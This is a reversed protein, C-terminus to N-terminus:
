IHDIFYNFIKQSKEDRMEEPHWQVGFVNDKTGHVVAEILRDKSWAVAELGDALNKIAQHHFSNVFSKEACIHSLFSNSDVHISHIGSGDGSKQMHQIHDDIETDINQYLNGGMAVNLLQMGRCIGFIPIGLELANEVLAIEFSDRIVDVYGLDKVPEEGYYNPHLDVGGALVLGDMKTLIRTIDDNLQPRAPILLPIGGALHIKRTYKTGLSNVDGKKFVGDYSTVIGIIPKQTDAM